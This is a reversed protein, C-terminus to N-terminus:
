FSLLKITQWFKSHLNLLQSYQKYWHVYLVVFWYNFIQPLFEPNTLCKQKQSLLVLLVSNSSIFLHAFVKEIGNRLQFLLSLSIIATPFGSSLIKFLYFIATASKLLLLSGTLHKSILAAFKITWGMCEIQGFSKINPIFQFIEMMWWVKFNRKIRGLIHRWGRLVSSRSWGLLQLHVQQFM